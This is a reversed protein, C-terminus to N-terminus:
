PSPNMMLIGWTREHGVRVHATPEPDLCNQGLGLFVVVALLASKIDM